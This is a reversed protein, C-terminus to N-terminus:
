QTKSQGHIDFQTTHANNQDDNWKYKYKYEHTETLEPGAAAEKGRNEISYGGNIRRGGDATGGARYYGMGLFM